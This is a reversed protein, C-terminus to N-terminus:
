SEGLLAIGARWPGNKAARVRPRWRGLGTIGYPILLLGALLAAIMPWAELSGGQPDFIVQTGVGIVFLAVGGGLMAAGGDLLRKVAAGALAPDAPRHGPRNVDDGLLAGFFRVRRFDGTDTM